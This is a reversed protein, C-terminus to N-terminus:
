NGKMRLVNLQRYVNNIEAVILLVIGVLLTLRVPWLPPDWATGSTLRNAVAEHLWVSSRWVLCSLTVMLLPFVLVLDILARSRESVKGYILDIRIHSDLLSAYAGSLIYSAGCLYTSLELGWLTPRNFFYRLVLELFVQLSAVLVLISLGRSTRAIVREILKPISAM